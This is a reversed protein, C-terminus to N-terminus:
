QISGHLFPRWDCGVCSVQLVFSIYDDLVCLTRLWNLSEGSDIYKLPGEIPQLDNFKSYIPCNSKSYAKVMKVTLFLLRYRPICFRQVVKHYRWAWLQLTKPQLYRSQPERWNHATKAPGAEPWAVLLSTDLCFSRPLLLCFYMM